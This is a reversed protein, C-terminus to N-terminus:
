IVFVRATDVNGAEMIVFVWEGWKQAAMLVAEAKHKRIIVVLRDCQEEEDAEAGETESQIFTDALVYGQATALAAVTSRVSDIQAQTFNEPVIIYGIAKTM